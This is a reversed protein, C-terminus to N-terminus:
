VGLKGLEVLAEEVSHIVCYTWGNVGTTMRGKMKEQEPDLSRGSLKCEWGVAVLAGGTRVAFCFDPWGITAHSKRDTRHWCYVIDRLSLLNAIQSQLQRESKIEAAAALEDQTKLGLATRDSKAILRVFSAPLLKPNV